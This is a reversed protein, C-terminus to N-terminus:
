NLPTTWLCPKLWMQIQQAQYHEQSTVASYARTGFCAMVRVLQGDYFFCLFCRSLSSTLSPFSAPLSAHLYCPLFTALCALPLADTTLHTLSASPCSAFWDLDPQGSVVAELLPQNTTRRDRPFFSSPTYATVFTHMILKQFEGRNIRKLDTDLSHTITHAM